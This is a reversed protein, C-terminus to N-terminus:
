RDGEGREIKQRLYDKGHTLSDLEAAPDYTASDICEELLADDDNLDAGPEWDHSSDTFPSDGQSPYSDPWWYAVFEHIHDEDSVLDDFKPRAKYTRVTVVDSGDPNHLRTRVGARFEFEDSERYDAKTVEVTPSESNTEDTTGADTRDGDAM